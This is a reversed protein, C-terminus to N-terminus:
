SLGEDAADSPSLLCVRCQRSGAGEPAGAKGGVAADGDLAAAGGEDDVLVGGMVLPVDGRACGSQIDTRDVTGDVKAAGTGRIRGSSDQGTLLNLQVRLGLCTNSDSM